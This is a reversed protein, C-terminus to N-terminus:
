GHRQRRAKAYKSETKTRIIPDHVTCGGDYQKLEALIMKDIARGMEEAQVSGLPKKTESHM